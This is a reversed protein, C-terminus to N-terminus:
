PVFNRTEPSEPSEPSWLAHATQVLMADFEKHVEGPYDAESKEYEGGNAKATPSVTM